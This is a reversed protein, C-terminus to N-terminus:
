SHRFDEKNQASVKFIALEPREWKSILFKSLEAMNWRSEIRQYEGWVIQWESLSKQRSHKPTRAKGVSRETYVQTHIHTSGLIVLLLHKPTYIQPPELNTM